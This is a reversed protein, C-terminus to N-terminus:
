KLSKLFRNWRFQGSQPDVSKVIIVVKGIIHDEPLLGWYRSDLSNFLDDGAMFYYNMKFTYEKIAEEGLIVLGDRISITKGTEYEILNKYLRVNLMDIEIADGSKPVYLPGFDKINWKYQLTDYPFCNWIDLSFNVKSMQALKRQRFVYSESDSYNKIGRQLPNPSHGEIKLEGNEIQFTDGPLAVCRKLYYVNLNMDIRDWGNSYPFNFVLIDNRRVKRIGKFRKTQVKGDVRIQKLSRFVRPGPIQKNAIILDGALVAPEMSPSPIKIISTFLFVRM